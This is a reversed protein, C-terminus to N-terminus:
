LFIKFSNACKDNNNILTPIETFPYLDKMYNKKRFEKLEHECIMASRNAVQTNHM